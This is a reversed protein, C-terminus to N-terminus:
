LVRDDYMRRVKVAQHKMVTDGLTVQGDGGIAVEGARRAAVITTSRM